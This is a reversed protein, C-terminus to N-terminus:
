LKVRVEKRFKATISAAEEASGAKGSLMSAMDLPVVFGVTSHDAWVCFTMGM